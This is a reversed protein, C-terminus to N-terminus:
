IHNTQKLPRYVRSVVSVELSQTPSSAITGVTTQVTQGNQVIPVLEAGTLSGTASPLQSIQVNAM